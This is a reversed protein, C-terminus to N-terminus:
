GGGLHRRIHELAEEVKIPKTLYADFGALMGREVDMPMAAASVAVVPIERTRSNARLERLATVGDMGPLNVDMLILDPRFTVALDLGREATRASEMTVDELRALISEMLELNAPNDEVYLVRGRVEASEALTPAAGEATSVLEGVDAGPLYFWFTSGAGEVSEFGIEGGMLEVIQKSLTLGIGSGEVDTVEAGLREFPAFVDAQKGAAIGLGTDSVRFYLRDGEAMTCEIIIEGGERNYKVANTLLNLLVQHLRTRDAKVVVSELDTSRDVITINRIAALPNVEELCERVVIVPQLDEISLAIVGSEIRALDLVENILELLHNGARLIHNVGRQHREPLSGEPDDEMLQAFGLISNMPTRLEHSMNSLFATKARSGAEADSKARLLKERAERLDTVDHVWFLVADDGFVPIAEWTVTAWFLSGNPRSLQVETAPVRGDRALIERFKARDRPDSWFSHAIRGSLDSAPVEYLRALRDNVYLITNAGLRAVGAGFPSSDLIRRIRTESAALEVEAKKRETIDRIIMGFYRTGDSHWTQLSILIPFVSGDLARGEITATRGVFPQEGDTLMEAFDGADGRWYRDAFIPSVRQGLINEASHGFMNAAGDNWFLVIGNEDTSIIAEEAARSISHFREEETRKEVILTNARRAREARTLVSAVLLDPDVPKTLLDDGGSRVTLLRIDPRREASLFVVPTQFYEVESQRIIATLELGNCGPMNIDMVIVEPAFSRVAAPVQAPDTAIKTEVEAAKLLLASHEAVAADDDVILCRFPDIKKRAVLRDLVRRLELIDIPKPLYAECGARTAALRAAFDDRITVFIVPAILRGEARLTAITRLGAGSEEEFIVDMIVADPVKDALAAEFAAPDPFVRVDYGFNTLVVELHRAQGEDDEVVFVTAGAEIGSPRVASENQRDSIKAHSGEDAEVAAFLTEMITDLTERRDEANSAHGEIVSLCFLELRRAADSLTSFGFTGASGALKHALSSVAELSMTSGESGAAGVALTLETLRADLKGRFAVRLAELEQEFKSM